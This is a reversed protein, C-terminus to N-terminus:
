LDLVKILTQRYNEFAEALINLVRTPSIYRTNYEFKTHFTFKDNFLDIIRTEGDISGNVTFKNKHKDKDYFPKLVKYVKNIINKDLWSESKRSKMFELKISGCNANKGLNAIQKLASKINSSGPTIFDEMDKLDGSVRMSLSKIDSLLNFDDEPTENMIYSLDLIADDKDIKFRYNTCNVIVNNLYEALANHGGVNQNNAMLLINKEKDFLLYTVEVLESDTSLNLELLNGDENKQYPYATTRRKIFLSCEYNNFEPITIVNDEKFLLMWDTDKGYRTISGDSTNIPINKLLEFLKSLEKTDLNRVNGASNKTLHLFYATINKQKAM